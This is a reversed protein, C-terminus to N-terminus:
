RTANMLGDFDQDVMASVLREDVYTVTCDLSVSTSMDDIMLAMAVCCCVEGSSWLSRPQYSISTRRERISM